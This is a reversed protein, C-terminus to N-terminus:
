APRVEFAQNIASALSCIFAEDETLDNRGIGVMIGHLIEHCLANSRMAESISENIIIKCDGYHIMGFNCDNGFPDDRYIVEYPIGCINVREIRCPGNHKNSTGEERAEQVEELPQMQIKAKATAM